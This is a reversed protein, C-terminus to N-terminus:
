RNLEKDLAIERAKEAYSAPDIKDMIDRMMGLLDEMDYGPAPFVTAFEMNELTSVWSTLLGKLKAANWRDLEAVTRAMSDAHDSAEDGHARRFADASFNDPYSM